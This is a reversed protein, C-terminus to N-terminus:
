SATAFLCGCGENRGPKGVHGPLAGPLQSFYECDGEKAPATLKITESQGNQILKTAALVGNKTPLYARGQDDLQDPRMAPTMPGIKDRVGPEVVVLNHPMFDPNEFIIEFPKGAEVVLRTTDYRMQERVSRVLFVAVRLAKLDTRLRAAQDAPALGTLDGAVQIVQVYDPTTRRDTPVTKAWDVFAAAAPAAQARPWQGRPVALIGQAAAQVSQKRQILASLLGFVTEYDKHMSVLARIAARQVPESGGSGKLLATTKDFAKARFDQDPLLPIAELVDALQRDSNAVKTWQSDISGDALMLAAFGAQRVEPVAASTLKMLQDTQAKLEVPNQLPLLRAMIIGAGSGSSQQIM